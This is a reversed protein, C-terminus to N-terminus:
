GKPERQGRLWLPPCSAARDVWAPAAGENPRRLVIVLAPVYLLWVVPSRNIQVYAATDRQVSRRLMLLFMSNSLISVV